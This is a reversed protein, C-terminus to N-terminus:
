ACVDPNAVLYEEVAKFLGMARDKGKKIDEEKLECGEKVHYESTMKCVCGSGAAVFKVEEVICDIKDFKIDSEMMTYKCYFSGADLADIKHKTYKIHSSEIMTYKCYFSGADLADIKHKTYKIHSSEGFNTKKISGVGGEGEIFEVSKIGGPVIKPLIHSDLFLAKFMRSPAVVSTIEQSYTVVGM